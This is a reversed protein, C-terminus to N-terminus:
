RNTPSLVFLSSALPIPKFKNPIKLESLRRPRAGSAKTDDDDDNGEEDDGTEEGDAVYCANKVNSSM